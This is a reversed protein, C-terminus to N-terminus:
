YGMMEVVWQPTLEEIKDLRPGDYSAEVVMDDVNVVVRIDDKEICKAFERAKHEKMTMQYKDRADKDNPLLQCVKKFDKVALDLHNLAANASARRYYAKPYTEDCKISDNADLINQNAIYITICVLFRLLM